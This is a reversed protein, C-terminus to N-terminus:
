SASRLFGRGAHKELFYMGIMALVTLGLYMIAAVMYFTFAEKTFGVAIQAHRMIEELGIVSVLATDKMLIMFLNGLGPLAIRWMQPLVLKFLIRSRSMGLALGAERHGKPIALIAGRFVETAYAGFCLGLAIVGAAFASLALNPIGLLEGLAHMGNVTGFYILLVWLLEPIGRVLTSYTGGLWQLPKYPSTKALAGLLGLVLGLCLASLALQVTMLAGAALAPGFGHLDINM